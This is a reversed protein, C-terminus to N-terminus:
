QIPENCQHQLFRERREKNRLTLQDNLKTLEADIERKKKCVEEIEALLSTDAEEFLNGITAENYPYMDVQKGSATLMYHSRMRICMKPYTWVDITDCISLFNNCTISKFSSLLRMDGQGYANYKMGKKEIPGRVDKIEIRVKHLEKGDDILADIVQGPQAEHLIRYMRTNQPPHGSISMM